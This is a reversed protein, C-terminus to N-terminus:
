VCSDERKEASQQAQATVVDQPSTFDHKQPCDMAEGLRM